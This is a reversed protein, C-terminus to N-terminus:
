QQKIRRAVALVTLGLLGLSIAAPEPTLAKSVTFEVGVPAAGTAFAAAAGDGTLFFNTMWALQGADGGEAAVLRTIFDNHHTNPFVTSFNLGESGYAFASNTFMVIHVKGDGPNPTDLDLGVILSSTPVFSVTHSLTALGSSPLTYSFDLNTGGPGTELIMVSTVNNGNLTGAGLNLSYDVISGAQASVILSVVVASLACVKM